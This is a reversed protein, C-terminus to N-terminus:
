VRSVAAQQARDREGSDIPSGKHGCHVRNPENHATTMVHTTAKCNYVFRRWHCFTCQGSSLIGGGILRYKGGGLTGLDRARATTRREVRCVCM